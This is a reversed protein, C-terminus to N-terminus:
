ASGNNGYISGTVHENGVQIVTAQHFHGSGGIPRSCADLNCDGGTQYIRVRNRQVALAIDEDSVDTIRVVLPLTISIGRAPVECGCVM